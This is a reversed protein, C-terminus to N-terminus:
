AGGDVTREIVPALSALYADWGGAELIAEPCHGAAVLLRERDDVSLGLARWIALVVVRGVMQPPGPLDREIRNIYAPDVGTARALQNQSLGAELRRRRMMAPLSTGEDARATSRSPPPHLSRLHAPM